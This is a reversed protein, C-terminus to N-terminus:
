FPEKESPEDTETGAEFPKTEVRGDANKTLIEIAREAETLRTSCAQALAVGEKFKALMQDLSLEGAEMEAVIQELKALSKEFDVKAM